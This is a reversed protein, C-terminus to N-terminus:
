HWKKHKKYIKNFWVFLCLLIALSTFLIAIKDCTPLELFEKEM